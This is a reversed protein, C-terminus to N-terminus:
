VLHGVQSPNKIRTLTELHLEFFGERGINMWLRFLLFHGIAIAPGNSSATRKECQKLFTNDIQFYLESQCFISSGLSDESAVVVVSPNLFVDLWIFGHIATWVPFGM